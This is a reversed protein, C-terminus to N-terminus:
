SLRLSPIARPQSMASLGKLSYRPHPFPYSMSITSGPPMISTWYTKFTDVFEFFPEILNETIRGQAILDIVPLLLLPKHPARHNTIEPYRDRGKDTRLNAFIQLYKELMTNWPRWRRIVGAYRCCPNCECRKWNGPLLSRAARLLVKM